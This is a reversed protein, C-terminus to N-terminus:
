VVGLVLEHRFVRLNIVFLDLVKPARPRVRVVGSFAATHMTRVAFRARCARHTLSLGVDGEKATSDKRNPVGDELYPESM